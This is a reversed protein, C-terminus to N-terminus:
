KGLKIKDKTLKTCGKFASDDYTTGWDDLIHVSTLNTCNEFTGSEIKKVSEPITVSTLGICGKFAEKRIETVSNPIVYTGQKGRPYQILATKNKNFLVGDASSYSPNDTSADISTLGTCDSFAGWGIETV